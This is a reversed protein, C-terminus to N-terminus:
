IWSGRGWRGLYFDLIGQKEWRDRSILLKRISERILALKTRLSAYSLGFILRNRSIFYSHLPSSASSSGSNLHWIVSQPYVMIEYGHLKFRTSLDADELYMFYKENFLGTNKLVEGRILCCCGSLFDIHKTPIDFQGHDVEDIKLNSGYINNWDIKGGLAWIVKGLDKKHYRQTYYEHGPAFYIKPSIAAVRRNKDLVDVLKELFDPKVIIDNNALLIYEYGLKLVQSIVFNNGKAFGLNDDSKLLTIYTNNQSFESLKGYSGDGSGNDLLFIHFQFNAHTINLFSKLTDITLDPQKWNLIIIAIKAM